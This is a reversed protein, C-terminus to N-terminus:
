YFRITKASGIAPASAIDVDIQDNYYVNFCEFTFVGDGNFPGAITPPLLSPFTLVSDVIIPPITRAKVAKIRLETTLPNDYILTKGSGDANMVYLGYQQNYDACWSFMIRGDPLVDPEGAYESNYIGYSTPDTEHAYNDVSIDTIGFLHEYVGPGREYKRLGGFGAAETM